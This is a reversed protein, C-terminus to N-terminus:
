GTPIYSLNTSYRFYYNGALKDVIDGYLGACNVVGRARFSGATSQIDWVGTDLTCSEVRGRCVVKMILFM